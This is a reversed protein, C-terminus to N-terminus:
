SFWNPKFILYINEWHGANQWSYLHIYLFCYVNHRFVVICYMNVAYSLSWLYSLYACNLKPGTIDLDFNILQHMFMDNSTIVQPFVNRRMYKCGPFCYRNPSKCGNCIKMSMRNNKGIYKNKVMYRPVINNEFNFRIEITTIMINRKVM